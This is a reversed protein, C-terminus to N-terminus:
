VGGEVRTIELTVPVVLECHKQSFSVSISAWFGMGSPERVYVDGRWKSLRRLAYITDKDSKPIDVNWTTTEGVQTGYYSVPHERGIYKIFSVDLDNGERVDINYPLRLMSGTWVPQEFEDESWVDFRNWKEAWQILVAKGDVPYGPVDYYGVAGTTNSTAVIRYRAYDLAPHPDTVYSNGDLGSAIETFSGDFERRYVTLSVDPSSCTPRIYAVYTDSDVTLSADPIPVETDFSTIFTTTKEASLGSNMSVLCTLTYSIGDVLDINSPTLLVELPDSVDYYKSFVSEGVSVWKKNGINDSTEYAENAIVTLYYGIPMQTNPGALASISIPFSSVMSPATLVLTPPAYIDISRSISWKGVEQTVGATRVRWEIKDGDNYMTTDLEFSGINSREDEDEEVDPYEVFEFDPILVNNVTFEIQAFTQRSNDETNHVWYLIVKDGVTASTVSSWTTPAEPITGVTVSVLESTWASAGNDNVARVRFFHESGPTLGTIEWCTNEIGNKVTTQDSTDFYNRNDSYEIDYSTATAAAEWELYVSTESAAECRIIRPVVEPITTKPSSYESWESYIKTSGFSTNVARCRVIYEGGASVTCVYSARRARVDCVGTAFLVDGNNRVDRVQFEIQDTSGTVTEDRVESINELSATLQFKNVKDFEVTPANPKGPPLLATNYTATAATGTWYPIEKGSVRHTKAVPTVSVKVTVANDPVNYTSICEDDGEINGSSGAFWVGNGTDYKWKVEYHDLTGGDHGHDSDTSADSIKTLDNVNIPSRINFLGNSDAGLVARDGTLSSVTWILPLVWSSIKEGNYYTTVGDKIKVKDGVRITGAAAMGSPADFDWTAYLTSNGGTQLNIKLNSVSAM